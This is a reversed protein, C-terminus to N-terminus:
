KERIAWLTFHRGITCSVRTQNRPWSSGRSFSIAVWELVRAQFIGQISSCPLSCDMPDWLTPGSQAVESKDENGKNVGGYNSRLGLLLSPVCGQGDVSFQILFKSLLARGMLVLSLKGRLWDWGDPLKWLGRIRIWWYTLDSLRDLEKRGQPRYLGGPEKPWPIKWAHISSHTAMEKELPDEQGLSQVGTERVTPLHKVMQAVLSARMWGKQRKMSNVSDLCSYQLPKGNGEGTPWMKDSNEAM